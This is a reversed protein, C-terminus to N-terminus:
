RPAPFRLNVEPARLTLARAVTVLVSLADDALKNGTFRLVDLGADRLALDKDHDRELKARSSHYRYGDIEVVVQERRWLFDVTWRGIRANLEPQPLGGARVLALMREEADSRSITSSRGEDTLAALPACGRRQPYRSIVLRIAHRTALRRAIAEDVALELERQSVECAIDLLTRAPSTIPIGQYERSDRPDIGSVRHVRIGARRRGADREAVTVDVAGEPRPRVGWVWAASRHSLYTQAGCALVAACEAALPALAAHGVAHVGRHVLLLRGRALAYEIAGRGIGFEMLQRVTM